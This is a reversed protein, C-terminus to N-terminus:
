RQEATDILRRLRQLATAASQSDGTRQYTVADELQLFLRYWHV